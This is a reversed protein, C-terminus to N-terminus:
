LQRPQEFEPKAPDKFSYGAEAPNFDKPWSKVAEAKNRRAQNWFRHYTHHEYLDMERQFSVFMAISVKNLVRPIFLVFVGVLFVLGEPSVHYFEVWNPLGGMAMALLTTIARWISSCQHLRSSFLALMFFEFVFFACIILLIGSMLPKRIKLVMEHVSGLQPMFHIACEWFVLVFIFLVVMELTKQSQAVTLIEYVLHKSEETLQNDELLSSNSAFHDETKTHVAIRISLIGMPIVLLLLVWFTISTCGGRDEPAERSLYKPWGTIRRLEMLLMLFALLIVMTWLVYWQDTPSNLNVIHKQVSPLVGGSLTSEVLLQYVIFAHMSPSYVYLVFMRAVDDQELMSAQFEAVSALYDEETTMNILVETGGTYTTMQGVMYSFTSSAALSEIWSLIKDNRAQYECNPYHEGRSEAYELINVSRYSPCRSFAEPTCTPEPTPAAVSTANSDNSQLFRLRARNPESANSINSSNDDFALRRSTNSSNSSNGISAAVAALHSEDGCFTLSSLDSAVGKFQFGVAGVTYLNSANMNPLVTSRMLPGGIYDYYESAMKINRFADLDLYTDEMFRSILHLRLPFNRPKVMFSNLTLFFLLACLFLTFMEIARSWKDWMKQAKRIRGKDLLSYLSPIDDINVPEPLADTDGLSKRMNQLEDDLKGKEFTFDDMQEGKPRSLDEKDLVTGGRVMTLTYNRKQLVPYMLKKGFESVQAGAHPVLSTSSSSAGAAPEPQAEPEYPPPLVIEKLQMKDPVIRDDRDLFFVANSDLGWYKAAQEALMKVEEDLRVKFRAHLSGAGEGGVHLNIGAREEGPFFRVDVDISESDKWERLSVFDQLTDKVVKNIRGQQQTSLEVSHKSKLQDFDRKKALYDEQLVDLEYSKGHIEAEVDHLKKDEQHKSKELRRLEEKLGEPSLRDLSKGHEDLGEVFKRDEEIVAMAM